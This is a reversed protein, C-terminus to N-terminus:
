ALKQSKFDGIPFVEIGGDGFKAPLNPGPHLKAIAVAEEMNEADVIFFAGVPKGSAEFPGPRDAPSGDKRAVVRTEHPMGLSGVADVHGSAHLARDHPECAAGLEAFDSPGLTSFVGLDFHCICLFKM